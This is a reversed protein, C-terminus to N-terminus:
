KWSFIFAPNADSAGPVVDYFVVGARLGVAPFDGATPRWGNVAPLDSGYDDTNIVGDLNRDILVAIDTTGFADCLLGADESGRDAFDTEAFVHFRILKRNQLAATENSVLASGDRKRAALLDHFLHDAATAGGNVKFTSDFAPYYGYESRFLEIAAAWQNFQARTRAKNATARASAVSPILIALLIGIIAIVALLEIVTFASARARNKGDPLAGVFCRSVKM